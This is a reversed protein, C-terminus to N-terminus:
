GDLDELPYAKFTSAVPTRISFWDIEKTDRVHEQLRRLTEVDPIAYDWGPLGTDKRVVMASLLPLNNALCFRFIHRVPRIALRGAVAENFGMKKGLNSYSIVGVGFGEENCKLAVYASLIQWAQQARVYTRDGDGFTRYDQM